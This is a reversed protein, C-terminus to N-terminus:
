LPETHKLTQATVHCPHSSSDAATYVLRETQSQGGHTKPCPDTQNECWLM